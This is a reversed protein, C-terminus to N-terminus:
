SDTLIEIALDMRQKGQNLFRDCEKLREAAIAFQEFVQELPLEGSELRELIAEIESVTAEYNWNEKDKAKKSM